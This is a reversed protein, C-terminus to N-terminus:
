ENEKGQEYVQVKVWRRMHRLNPDFPFRAVARDAEALLQEATQAKGNSTKKMELEATLDAWLYLLGIALWTARLLLRWSPVARFTFRSLFRWRSASLSLSPANSM